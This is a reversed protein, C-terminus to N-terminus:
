AAGAHPRARAGGCAGPGTAPSRSASKAPTCICSRSASVRATAALYQRRRDCGMAAAHGSSIPAAPSRSWRWGPSATGRGLVKWNTIAKQGDPDPKQWWGREANLRGLAMDIHRSRRYPRGRGRDIPRRSRATSSCCGLSATAKRHRGLILCGSTDKDLRHALVPPRPLGFRLADFSDELNPGGKPRSAGAPRGAQRDGADARRPPARPGPNRGRDIPSCRDIRRSKRKHASVAVCVRAMFSVVSCFLSTAAAPPRGSASRSNSPVATASRTVLRLSSEAISSSM